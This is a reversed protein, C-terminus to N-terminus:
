PATPVSTTHPHQAAVGAATADDVLGSDDVTPDLPIASAIREPTWYGGDDVPGPDAAVDPGVVPGTGDVSRSGEEHVTVVPAVAPTTSTAAPVQSPVTSVPQAPAWTGVPQEAINSQSGAVDSQQTIAATTEPATPQASAATAAVWVGIGVVATAALAKGAFSM